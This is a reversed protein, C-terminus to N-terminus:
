AATGKTRSASASTVHPWVQNKVFGDGCGPCKKNGTWWQKEKVQNREQVRKTQGIQRGEFPNEETEEIEPLASTELQNWSSINGEGEEIVHQKDLTTKYGLQHKLSASTVNQSMDALFSELLEEQNAGPLKREHEYKIKLRYRRYRRDQPSDEHTGASCQVADTIEV